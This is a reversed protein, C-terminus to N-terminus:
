IDFDCPQQRSDENRQFYRNEAMVDIAVVFYVGAPMRVVATRRFTRNACEHLYGINRRSERIDFTCSM